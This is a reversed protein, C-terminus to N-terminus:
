LLNSFQPTMKEEFKGNKRSIFLAAIQHKQALDFGIKPGLVMLATALADATMCSNHLVTVSALENKIPRGTKPDLTHSYRKGDIEFFNRYDGSTAMAMNTMAVVKYVSRQDSIPSEIAVRWPKSKNKLGRTKIEGGVEVLFNEIGEGELFEVVRDVAYGKAIGSLDIVSLSDTKRIATTSSRLEVKYYGVNNLLQELIKENPVIKKQEKRGFGWLEVLGGLTIDFAGQSLKSIRLAESVVAFTRPSISFWQTNRSNNFQSIESEPLYTSMQQNIDSLLSNIQKQLSQSNSLKPQKVIKISYSTGMSFGTMEIINNKTAGRECGTAVLFLVLFWVKLNSLALIM